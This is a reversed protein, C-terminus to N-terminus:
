TTAGASGGSARLDGAPLALEFSELGAHGGISCYVGSAVPRPDHPAPCGIRYVYLGMAGGLPGCNMRGGGATGAAKNKTEM